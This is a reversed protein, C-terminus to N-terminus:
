EYQGDDDIYLLSAIRWEGAEEVLQYEYDSIFEFQGVHRTRVTAKRGSLAVSEITECDPNHMSEDGFSVGQRVVTPSCFRAVLEDYEANAAALANLDVSGPSRTRKDRDNTRDNWEHYALIFARVTEEPTSM